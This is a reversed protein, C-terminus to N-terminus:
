LEANNKYKDVKQQTSTIESESVYAKVTISSLDNQSNLSNANNGSGQFAFSPQVAQPTAITTTTNASPTAGGEFETSKIKAINALGSAITLGAFVAGLIPNGASAFASVAGKYTDISATAINAIKQIKFAKKQREKDKGAWSEAINGIASFSGKIAEINKARLDEKRKQEQEDYKKKIADLEAQQSEELLAVDQGHQKAQELLNFYKDRVANEERQQVTLKSELYANEMQEITTLLEARAESEVKALEEAQQRKRELEEAHKKDDISKLENNQEEQLLSIVKIREDKLYKENAKVDEIARKYKENIQAREKEEGEVMGNIILDQIEREIAKRDEKYKKYADARKKAEDRANDISKKKSEEEDKAKDVKDKKRLYDRENNASRMVDLQENMETKLKKVEEEDYDGSMILAKLRLQLAKGREYATRKILEQKRIEMEVTNKGDLQEMRIAQDINGIRRKSAQEYADARKEQADASKQAAEQEAYSTIGLWDLFEKLKDVVWDIADVILGFLAGIAKLIPKLFGLKNLLLGVVTVIAIIAVALLFIPNTLLMMGMSMFSKALNGVVSILGKLQTGFEKPNIAKMRNAFLSASEGAGEFDLSALQSKMLGFANSTQEFKSGSAFIQAKENADKLKDSLEGINESLRAVEAPDTANILEGRLNKIQQRVEKVGGLTIPIEISGARAM